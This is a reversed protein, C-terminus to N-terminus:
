YPGISPPNNILFDRPGRSTYYPYAVGAASPPPAPAPGLAMNGNGNGDGNGDGGPGNPGGPGGPGGRGGRRCCHGCYHGWLNEFLGARQCDPQCHGHGSWCGERVDCDDCSDCAGHGRGM